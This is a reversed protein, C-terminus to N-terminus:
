AFFDDEIIKSQLPTVSKVALVMFSKRKDGDKTVEFIDKNDLEISSNVEPILECKKAFKINVWESTKAVRCSYNTYEKGDKTTNTNVYVKIRM